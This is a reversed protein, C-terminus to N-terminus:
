EGGYIEYGRDRAWEVFRRAAEKRDRTPSPSDAGSCINMAGNEEVRYVTYVCGREVLPNGTFELQYLDDWLTFAALLFRGTHASGKRATERPKEATCSM